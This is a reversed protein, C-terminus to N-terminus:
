RRPYIFTIIRKTIFSTDTTSVVKKQFQVSLGWWNGTSISYKSVGDVTTGGGGFGTDNTATYPSRGTTASLVTITNICAMSYYANAGGSSGAFNQALYRTSVSASSNLNAAFAEVQKGAMGTAGNLISLGTETRIRLGVPYFYASNPLTFATGVAQTANTGVNYTGSEPDPDYLVEWVKDLPEWFYTTGSDRTISEFLKGGPCYTPDQILITGGKFGASAPDPATAVTYATDGINQWNGSVKKIPQMFWGQDTRFGLNGDVGTGSSPLGSYFGAFGVLANQVFACTAVQTTSTGNTATPATPTGTLGPSAKPAYSTLANSVFATTAIKTSSDGATATPALPAGTLSPSALPAYAAVVNQVFACSALQATATATSATPATPVGTFAPDALPAKLVKESNYTTVDVKGGLAANLDSQATFLGTIQGWAITPAPIAAIRAVVYATSAATASNDNTAPTPITVLGTFTPAAKTAYPLLANTVFACTAIQTTNTGPVASPATPVGTLAANNVMAFPALAAQVFECTAIQTTNAGATATPAQPTGTLSPSNLNAKIALEQQVFATSALQSSNTGGPATPTTPIGTFRPDAAPALGAIGANYAILSVKGSLQQDVYTLSAKLDLEAQLDVQSAISGVITGWTGGSSPATGAVDPDDQLPRTTGIFTQPVTWYRGEFDKYGLLRGDEDMMWVPSSLGAAEKWDTSM